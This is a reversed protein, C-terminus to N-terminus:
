LVRSGWTKSFFIKIDWTLLSMIMIGNFLCVCLRCFGCILPWVSFYRVGNLSESRRNSPVTWSLPTFGLELCQFYDDLLALDKRPCWNGIWQLMQAVTEEVIHVYSLKWNYNLVWKVFVKKLVSISKKIM